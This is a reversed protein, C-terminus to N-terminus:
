TWDQVNTPWLNDSDSLTEVFSYKKKDGGCIRQVAREIKGDDMIRYVVVTDKKSYGVFPSQVTMKWEQDPAINILKKLQESM